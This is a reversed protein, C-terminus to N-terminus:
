PLAELTDRLVPAVTGDDEATSADIRKRLASYDAEQANLEERLALQAARAADRERILRATEEAASEASSKWSDRQQAMAQLDAEAKDIEATM